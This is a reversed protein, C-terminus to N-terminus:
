KILNKLYNLEAKTLHRWRGVPINGLKLMGVSIRKLGLVKFGVTEIMKRIQRNKGETISIELMDGQLQRVKATKTKIGDIFVGKRLKDLGTKSPMGNLAAIYTKEINHKPHTLAYAIEGDNTLLLLGESDYDLRGVPFVRASVEGKILDIVTQRDFNDKVTSLCGRPKNLLIYTKKTPASVLKGNVKVSDAENIKTGLKDTVINNVTVAGKEILEEAKRRSAIGCDALYKQLRM